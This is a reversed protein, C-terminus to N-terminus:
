QMLGAPVGPQIIRIKSSQLHLNVPGTGGGCENGNTFTGSIGTCDANITGSVSFSCCQGNPDQVETVDLEISGDEGGSTGAVSWSCTVNPLSYSGSM